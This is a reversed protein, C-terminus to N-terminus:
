RARCPRRRRLPRATAVGSLFTLAAQLARLPLRGPNPMMKHGPYAKRVRSIQCATSVVMTRRGPARTVRMLVTRSLRYATDLLVPIISSPVIVVFYHSHSRSRRTAVSLHAGVQLGSGNSPRLQHWSYARGWATNVFWHLRFKSAAHATHGSHVWSHIRRCLFLPM